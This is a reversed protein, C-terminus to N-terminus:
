EASKKKSKKGIQRALGALSNNTGALEFSRLRESHNMAKDVLTTLKEIPDKLCKESWEMRLRRDITKAPLGLNSLRKLEKEILTQQEMANAMAQYIQIIHRLETYLAKQEPDKELGDMYHRLIRRYNDVIAKNLKVQTLGFCARLLFSLKTNEPININPSTM